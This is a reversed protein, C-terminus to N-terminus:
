TLLKCRVLLSAASTPSQAGDQWMRAPNEWFLMKQETHINHINCQVTKLREQQIENNTYGKNSRRQLGSVLRLKEKVESAREGAWKREGGEM